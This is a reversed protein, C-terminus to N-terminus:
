GHPTEGRDAQPVTARRHGFVEAMAAKRLDTVGKERLLEEYEAQYRRLREGVAESLGQPYPEGVDIPDEKVGSSHLTMYSDVHRIYKALLSLFEDDANALHITSRIIAVAEAHNPLLVKDEIEQSLKQQTQQPLRLAWAPQERDDRPRLDLFAMPWVEDDRRLRMYLPWYFESLRRELLQVRIKWTELPIDSQWGFYQDWLSKGVVGVAAGVTALVVSTLTPTDSM